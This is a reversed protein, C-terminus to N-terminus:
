VKQWEELALHSLSAGFCMDSCVDPELGGPARFATQALVELKKGRTFIM